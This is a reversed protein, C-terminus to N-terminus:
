IQAVKQVARYFIEKAEGTFQAEGTKTKELLAMIELKLKALRIQSRYDRMKYKQLTKKQKTKM